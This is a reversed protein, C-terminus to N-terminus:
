YGLNRISEPLLGPKDTLGGDMRVEEPLLMCGKDKLMILFDAFKIV